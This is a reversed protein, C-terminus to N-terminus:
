AIWGRLENHILDALMDVGHPSANLCPIYAFREGGAALFSDRLEMDIEELTELCDASFAPAVVALNRVGRDKVLMEAYHDTYPGVWKTPGVRSQFSTHLFGDDFKLNEALLRSTKRCHCPYPDGKHWYAEPISHYSALLADPTWDLASLAHSIHDAMTDIYVPNDFYPPLTRIAPQWRVASLYDFVKDQVTATTTASYHPYLPAILIRDCGADRLVDLQSEISTSGYRFAWRVVIDHGFRGQMAAAQDRTITLLPSQNLGEDWIRAYAKASRGSRFTLIPGHLIPWWLWKPVEIVRPDSLFEALYRRVAGYTPADPTGLAVLLLGIKGTRVDPHNAGASPHIFQDPAPM